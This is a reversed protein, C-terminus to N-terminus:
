DAADIGMGARAVGDESYATGEPIGKETFTGNRNNIYLKNPETDNSVAIDPWGDQNADLIAIGLSKSTPDYLGAKKTVDTFTGNGNNHWLRLSAGHYSEPTCFSKHVGDMTCYLDTQPTWQVYNAVLLDLRGDRDVDVWAASTSLDHPGWLGAQKTVDTFTGNGNNRFLHNHPPPNPKVQLPYPHMSDALPRGNVVYLSPRGSNNYDFWLCGAGTGELLSGLKASGISHVFDIGSQATADEFRISSQLAPPASSSASQPLPLTNQAAALSVVGFFLLFSRMMM